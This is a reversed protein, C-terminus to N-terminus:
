TASNCCCPHAMALPVAPSSGQWSDHDNLHSAQQCRQQKCASRLWLSASSVTTSTTSCSGIYL